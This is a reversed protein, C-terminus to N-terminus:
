IIESELLESHLLRAWQQHAESLPHQASARPAGSRVLWEEFTHGDKYAMENKGASHVSRHAGPKVFNILHQTILSFRNVPEANTALADHFHFRVGLSSLFFQMNLVQQVYTVTAQEETFLYRYYFRNVKLGSRDAGHKKTSLNTKMLSWGDDFPADSRVDVGPMSTFRETRVLDTFGICVLLEEASGGAALYSCVYDYTMRVARANSGGSRGANIVTEVDLLRGLHSPWAKKNRYARVQTQTLIDKSQGALRLEPDEEELEKGETFSCGNAYLTRIM